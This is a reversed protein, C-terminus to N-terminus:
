QKSDDVRFRYHRIELGKEGGATVGYLALVYEGSREVGPVRVGITDRAAEVGIPLTWEVAGGSAHLEATYSSFQAQGPVDMLLLFPATRPVRVVPVVADRSNVLVASPLIQPAKAVALASGLRPYEILNQYSALGLLIVAAATALAPWLRRVWHPRDAVPAGAHTGFVPSSLAVKSHELFRAATRVDLACDQCGFLHEEFRDRDEVTLENLFYKETAMLQVAESHEMVVTERAFYHFTLPLRKV